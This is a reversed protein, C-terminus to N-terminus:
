LDVAYRTELQKENMELDLYLVRQPKTAATLPKIGKGSAISQGIQMALASVGKGTDGFMVATEGERWYEGFLAKPIPRQKAENIWDNATRVVAENKEIVEM